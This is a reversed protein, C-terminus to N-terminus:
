LNAQVNYSYYFIYSVNEHFYDHVGQSHRIHAFLVRVVNITSTYEPLHTPIKFNTITGCATCLKTSLHGQSRLIDLLLTRNINILRNSM